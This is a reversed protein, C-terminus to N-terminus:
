PSKWGACDRDGRRGHVPRTTDMPPDASMRDTTRDSPEARGPRAQGQAVHRQAHSHGTETRDAPQVGRVQGAVHGARPQHPQHVPHRPQRPRGALFQGHRPRGRVLLREAVRGDAGHHDGGRRGGVGPHDLLGGRGPPVHEALLRQGQVGVAAGAGGPRHLRSPEAQLDPEVAAEIGVPHGGLPVDLGPVDPRDLQQADRMAVAAVRVAATRVPEPAQEDVHRDV